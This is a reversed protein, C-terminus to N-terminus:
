FMIDYDECITSSPQTFSVPCSFAAEFLNKSPSFEPVTIFYLEPNSTQVKASSDCFYFNCKYSCFDLIPQLLVNKKQSASFLM